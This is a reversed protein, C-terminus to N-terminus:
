LSQPSLIFIESTKKKRETGSLVYNCGDVLFTLKKYRGPKTKKKMKHNHPTRKKDDIIIRNRLTEKM